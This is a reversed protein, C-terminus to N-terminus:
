PLSILGARAALVVAELKSRAGLKAIASAIRWRALDYSWGLHDAAEALGLGAGSQSLVEREEPTLSSVGLSGPPRLRDHIPAGIEGYRFSQAGSTYTTGASSVTVCGTAPVVSAPSGDVPRQIQVLRVATESSRAEREASNRQAM